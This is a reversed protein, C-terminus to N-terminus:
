LRIRSQMSLLADGPQFAPLPNFSCRAARMPPPGLADGPQFAPLPNFRRFKRCLRCGAWHMERSFLRSHISVPLPACDPAQRRPMERSFLRSHISVANPINSSSNFLPMERSFLWSHISVTGILRIAAIGIADGPQFAPLPNFRIFINCTNYDFAPMERSFLRSHISVAIVILPDLDLVDCRGASFGPTSQFWTSVWISTATTQLMERSFLRSHISVAIDKDKMNNVGLMERSFLRSHISVPTSEGLLSFAPRMERSFLRSHISVARTDCDNRRAVADGPQFAPLRNLSVEGSPPPAEGDYYGVVEWLFAGARRLM